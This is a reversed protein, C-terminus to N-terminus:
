EGVCITEWERIEPEGGEKTITTSEVYEPSKKENSSFKMCFTFNQDSRAGVGEEGIGIIQTM